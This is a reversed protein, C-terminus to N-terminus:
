VYLFNDAIACEAAALFEEEASTLTEILKESQKAIKQLESNNTNKKATDVCKILTKLIQLRKLRKEILESRNLQIVDITTKGRETSSDIGIAIAGEFTIFDQPNENGPDVLSPTEQSLKSKHSTACDQPNSLPFIDNKHSNCSACSLYLNDWEYALWYYGPYKRESQKTNRVSTKPRFHDITSYNKIHSECYCCKSHQAIKLTKKVSSHRYISGKFEFKQKGTQYDNTNRTFLNSNRRRETKGEKLLKNPPIKPKNIPIM